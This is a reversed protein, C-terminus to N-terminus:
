KQLLYPSFFKKSMKNWLRGIGKAETHLRSLRTKVLEHIRDSPTLVSNESYYTYPPTRHHSSFPEVPLKMVVLIDHNQYFDIIKGIVVLLRYRTIQPTQWM